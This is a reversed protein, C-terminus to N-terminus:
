TEIMEYANQLRDALVGMIHMTFDPVYKLLSKFSSEDIVALTCDTTATVTASRIDSNILAMEGVVEGPKATAIVRSKLSISVEGEMVVYMLNGEEGESIIVTGSVFSEFDGSDKFIELLDM